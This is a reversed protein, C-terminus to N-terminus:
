GDRRKDSQRKRRFWRWAAPLFWATGLLAGMCVGIVISVAYYTSKGAENRFLYGSRTLHIGIAGGPAKAALYSPLWFPSPQWGWADALHEQPVNYQGPVPYWPNQNAGASLLGYLGGVVLGVILPLLHRKM